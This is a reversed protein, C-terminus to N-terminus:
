SESKELANKVAKCVTIGSEVEIIKIDFAKLMTKAGPGLEPVLVLDVDMEKLNKVALPGAGQKLTSAMNKEVSVEKVEEGEIDLITFIEARSFVNSVTDVMGRDGRTPVAVRLTTM